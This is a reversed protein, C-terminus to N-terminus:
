EKNVKVEGEHQVPQSEMEQTVTHVTTTDSVASDDRERAVPNHHGQTSNVDVKLCLKAVTKYEESNLREPPGHALLLTRVMTQTEARFEKLSQLESGKGCCARFHAGCASGAKCALDFSWVAVVGILYPIIFFSAFWWVAGQWPETGEVVGGLIVATTISYILFLLNLIPYGLLQFHTMQVDNAEYDDPQEPWTKKGAKIYAANLHNAACQALCCYPMFFLWPGVGIACLLVTPPLWFLAYALSAACGDFRVVAADSVNAAKLQAQYEALKALTLSIDEREPFAKVCTGFDRACRFYEMDYFRDMLSTSHSDPQFIKRALIYLEKTAMDPAQCSIQDFKDQILQMFAPVAPNQKTPLHKNAMHMAKIDAPVPFAESFTIHFGTRFLPKAISEVSTVV